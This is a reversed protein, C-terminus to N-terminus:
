MFSLFDELLLASRGLRVRGQESVSLAYPTQCVSFVDGRRVSLFMDVVEHIDDAAFDLVDNELVVGAPYHLGHHLM